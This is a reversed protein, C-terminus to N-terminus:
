SRDTSDPVATLHLGLVRLVARLKDLRVSPKGAEVAQVFRISVAALDAVDEQRLDFSKRRHAILEGLEFPAREHTHTAMEGM